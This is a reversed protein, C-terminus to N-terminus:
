PVAPQTVDSENIVCAYKHEYPKGNQSLHSGFHRLNIEGVRGGRSIHPRVHTCTHVGCSCNCNDWWNSDPRPTKLGGQTGEPRDYYTLCAGLFQTAPPATTVSAHEFVWTGTPRGQRTHRHSPNEKWYHRIIMPTTTVMCRAPAHLAVLPEKVWNPKGPTGPKQPYRCCGQGGKTAVRRLVGRM